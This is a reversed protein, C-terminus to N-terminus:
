PGLLLSGDLTTAGEPLRVALSERRTEGPRVEGIDIPLRVGTVELQVTGRWPAPSSNTLAAAVEVRGDPLAAVAMDAALGGCLPEADDASLTAASTVVPTGDPLLIVEFPAAVPERCTLIHSIGRLSSGAVPILFVGFLAAVALRARLLPPVGGTNRLPPPSDVRVVEAYM